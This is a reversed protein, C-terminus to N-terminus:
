LGVHCVRSHVFQRPSTPMALPLAEIEAEMFPKESTLIAAMERPFATAILLLGTDHLLGGLYETGNPTFFSAAMKETLLGIFLSRIWFSDWDPPLRLKAFAELVGESLVVQRIQGYGLHMVAEAMTSARGGFAASNALRFIRTTLAPELRIIDVCDEITSENSGMLQWLRGLQTDFAPLVDEHMRLQALIQNRFQIHALKGSLEPLFSEWDEFYVTAGKNPIFPQWAEPASVKTSSSLSSKMAGYPLCCEAQWFTM